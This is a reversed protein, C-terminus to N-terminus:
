SEDYAVECDEGLLGVAKGKVADSRAAGLPTSHTVRVTFPHTCGGAAAHRWPCIQLFVCSIQPRERSGMHATEGNKSSISRARGNRISHACDSIQNRCPATFAPPALDTSCLPMAIVRHGKTKYQYSKGGCRGEREIRLFVQPTCRSLALEAGPLRQQRQTEAPERSRARSPPREADASASPM